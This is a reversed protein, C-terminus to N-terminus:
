FQYMGRFTDATRFDHSHIQKKQFKNRDPIEPTYPTGVYGVCVFVVDYNITHEIKQKVDKVTVAWKGDKLPSVHTVLHHLQLRNRLKFKDAYSGLYKYVVTHSPFEETGEPFPYDPYEM